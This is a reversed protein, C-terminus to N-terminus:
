NSEQIKREVEQKMEKEETQIVKRIDRVDVKNKRWKGKRKKKGSLSQV